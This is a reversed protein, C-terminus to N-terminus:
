IEKLISFFNYIRTAKPLSIPSRISVFVNESISKKLLQNKFATM